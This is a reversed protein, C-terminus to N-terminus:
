CRENMSSKPVLEYAHEVRIGGDDQFIEAETHSAGGVGQGRGAAISERQM